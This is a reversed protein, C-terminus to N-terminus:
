EGEKVMISNGNAIQHIVVSFEESKLVAENPPKIIQETPHIRAVYWAVVKDFPEKTELQLMRGEDDKRLDLKTQAGPYILADIGSSPGPIQIVVPPPPPPVPIRPKMRRLLQGLVVLSVVGLAMLLVFSLLLIKVGRKKKPAPPETPLPSLPIQQHEQPAIYAPGTPAARNFHRTPAEPEAYNPLVETTGETVSTLQSDMMPQGCQRCFRAGAVLGAGCRNCYQEAMSM